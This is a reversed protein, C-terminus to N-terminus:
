KYLLFVMGVISLIMGIITQLSVTEKLFTVAIIFSVLTSLSFIPAVINVPGGERYSIYTFLISVGFILALAVTLLMSDTNIKDAFSPYTALFYIFLALSIVFVLPIMIRWDVNKVFMQTLVNYVGLALMTIVAAIRWDM